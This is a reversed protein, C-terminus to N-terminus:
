CKGGKIIAYYLGANSAFAADTIRQKLKRIFDTHDPIQSVLATIESIECVELSSLQDFWPKLLSKEEDSLHFQEEESVIIKQEDSKAKGDLSFKFVVGDATNEAQITHGHALVAMRCFTLGLGTSNPNRNDCKEVQFYKDFITELADAPIPRGYNKICIIVTQNTLEDATIVINSNQPSYRIANTLLNEIVRKLIEKDANVEFEKASIVVSINKEQLIIEQSDVVEEIVPNLMVAERKISFATQEYKEVDLLNMILRLMRGASYKMSRDSSKMLIQSLPNKLDHVLTSTLTRKFRDLEKLHENKTKLEEAKIGLEDKQRALQENKQKLEITRENIIEELHQKDKELRKTNLRVVFFLLGFWFAIMLAYFPYKLISYQNERYSFLYYFLRSNYFISSKGNHHIIEIRGEEPVPAFEQEIRFSTREKFDNSFVLLENKNFAIFEKLNSSNIDFFGYADAIEECRNCHVLEPSYIDLYNESHLVIEKGNTFLKDYGYSLKVKKIVQGKLDYLAAEAKKNQAIKSNTLSIIHPIDNVRIFESLTYNTWGFFEVPTFAFRLDENYLFTYSAFDGYQYIKDKTEEYMQLTDKNGSKRLGESEWPSVTNGAAIVRKALLYEKNHYSLLELKENVISSRETKVLKGNKLDYKYINRPQITYGAHLDFYIEHNNTILSNNIVDPANNFYSITDIRIKKLPLLLNKTFNYELINLYAVQKIATIFIIDRAGDQNIDALKLFRSIFLENKDFIYIENLAKNHRYEISHGSKNIRHHLISESASDNNVDLYYEQDTAEKRWTSDLELIYPDFQKKPIIKSILITFVLAIAILLINTLKRLTYWSKVSKM